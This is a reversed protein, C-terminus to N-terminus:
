QNNKELWDIENLLEQTEEWGPLFDQHYFRNRADKLRRWKDRKNKDIHKKEWLSTIIEALSDDAPTLHLKDAMTRILVEFERCALLNAVERKEKLRCLTAALKVNPVKALPLMLNNVRIELFTPDLEYTTKIEPDPDIGFCKEHLVWLAMDVDAIRKLNFDKKLKALDALYYRYTQIADSGRRLDIVREVPPSIIGYLDPRVFRLVISVLDISRLVSLLGQFLKTEYKASIHQFDFRRSELERRLEEDAPLSAFRGFPWLAEDMFIRLDTITLSRKDILQLDRSVRQEIAQWDFDRGYKSIAVERYQSLCSELYYQMTKAMFREM